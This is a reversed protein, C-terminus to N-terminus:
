TAIAIPRYGIMLDSTQMAYWGTSETWTWSWGAAYPWIYVRTGPTRGRQLWGRSTNWEWATKPAPAVFGAATRAGYGYFGGEVTGWGKYSAYAAIPENYPAALPVGANVPKDAAKASSLALAGAVLVTALIAVMAIHWTRVRIM